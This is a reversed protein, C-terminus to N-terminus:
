AFPIVITPFHSKRNIGNYRAAGNGAGDNKMAWLMRATDSPHVERTGLKIKQAIETGIAFKRYKKQRVEASDSEHIEKMKPTDVLTQGKKVVYLCQAVYAIAESKRMTLQSASRDDCVAHTMEHVLHGVQSVTAFSHSRFKFLDHHSDYEAGDAPLSADYKVGVKRNKVYDRIVRYNSGYLDFNCMKFGISFITGSHMSIADLIAKRTLDHNDPTRPPAKTLNTRTFIRGRRSRGDNMKVRDRSSFSFNKGDNSVTCGVFNQLYWNVEKPDSTQFNDRILDWVDTRGDRQAISGWDEGTTPFYPHHGQPGFNGNNWPIYPSPPKILVM